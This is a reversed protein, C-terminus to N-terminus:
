WATERYFKTEIPESKGSNNEFFHNQVFVTYMCTHRLCIFFSGSLAALVAYFAPTCRTSKM